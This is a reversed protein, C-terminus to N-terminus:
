RVIAFTREEGKTAISHKETDRIYGAFHAAMDALLADVHRPSGEAEMEVRGDDLNRIWGVVAHRRAFELATARFGVGHVRGSYLVRLRTPGGPQSAM